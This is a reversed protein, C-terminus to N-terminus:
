SPFGTICRHGKWKFRVKIWRKSREEPKPEEDYFVREMDCHSMGCRYCQSYYHRIWWRRRPQGPVESM